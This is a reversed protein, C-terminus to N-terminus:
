FGITLVIFTAIIGIVDCACKIHIGEFLGNMFM